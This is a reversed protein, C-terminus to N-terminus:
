SSSKEYRKRWAGKDYEVHTMVKDIYLRSLEFRCVAVLRINNGAIDFIIAGKYWDASNFTSRVQSFNDWRAEIVTRKWARLPIEAEPQDKIFRRARGWHNIKM